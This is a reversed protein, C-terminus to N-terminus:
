ERSTSPATRLGGLLRYYDRACYHTTLTFRNSNRSLLSSMGTPRAPCSPRVSAAVEEPSWLGVGGGTRGREPVRVHGAGAEERRAM